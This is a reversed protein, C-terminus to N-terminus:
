LVQAERPLGLAMGFVAVAAALIQQEQFPQRQAQQELAAAGLAALVVKVVGVGVVVGVV